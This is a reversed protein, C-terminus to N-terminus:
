VKTLTAKSWVGDDVQRPVERVKYAVGEVTLADGRKLTASATPYLIGYLRSVAAADALQALEDPEDKLVLFSASGAVCPLGMDSLFVDLDEAFAM